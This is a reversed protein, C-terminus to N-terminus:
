NEMSGGRAGSLNIVLLQPAFALPKASIQRKVENMLINQGWIPIISIAIYDGARLQHIEMNALPVADHLGMAIMGEDKEDTIRYPRILWGYYSKNPLRTRCQQDSALLDASPLSVFQDLDVRLSGYHNKHLIVVKCGFSVSVLCWLIAIYFKM